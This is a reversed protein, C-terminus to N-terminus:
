IPIEYTFAAWQGEAADAHITGGHLHIINWSVYLGIGSGKRQMLDPTDIRSFKKFLLNKKDDPFGPGENKVTVSLLTDTTKVSVTVAGKDNSYKVANSLINVTVVKMLDPDCVIRITNDPVDVTLSIIKEEIQPGVLEIAPNLVEEIFDTKKASLKISQNEFRSLNLYEMSLNHLYEAKHLIREVIKVHEPNMEGFYGKSLTRAITIISALPSKLEHTVFGLMEMYSNISEELQNIRYAKEVAQSLREAISLHLRVHDKTYAGPTRSSRFLLGVPRGDVSLPCTMSSMVGEKLLLRTSESRPTDKYYEGLDNIIRPSLSQFVTHLSSGQIDAAYGVTLFLPSYDAKVYYLRMRKGNEEVFAIGIRDCPFISRTHVFLFDIIEKLSNGAAIKLNVHNLVEGEHDPFTYGSSYNDAAPLYILNENSKEGM